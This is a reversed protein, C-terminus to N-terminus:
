RRVDVVLTMNVVRVAQTYSESMTSEYRIFNRCIQSGHMKGGQCHNSSYM